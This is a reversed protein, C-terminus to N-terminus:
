ATPFPLPARGGVYPPRLMAKQFETTALPLLKEAIDAAGWTSYGPSYKYLLSRRKNPSKWQRTGHILAETFILMDGAKLTPNVVLHSNVPPFWKCNAKHSGPVGIFGGDGPNVDELAYAVVVLGNYMKGQHWQYCHEGQDTRPGGHLNDGVDSTKQTMQIGYAHDLRFWEGIMERMIEMTKPWSMLEMFIPDHTIFDYTWGTHGVLRKDIAENLKAVFEPPIMNRYVILGNIDFEYIEADTM